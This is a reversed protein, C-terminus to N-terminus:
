TLCRKLGHSKGLYYCISFASRDVLDGAHIRISRIPMPSTEIISDNIAMGTSQYTSAASGPEPINHEVVELGRSSPVQTARM